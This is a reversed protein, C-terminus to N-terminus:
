AVAEGDAVLAETAQEVGGGQGVGVAGIGLEQVREPADLEENEVVPEAIREGDGLGAVDQFDEVIAVTLAGGEDGGLKGDVGPMGAEGVGGQGVGDEITEDVVGM